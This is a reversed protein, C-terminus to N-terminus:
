APSTKNSPMKRRTHRRAEDSLTGCVYEKLDDDLKSAVGVDALASEVAASSPM